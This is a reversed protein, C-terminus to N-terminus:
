LRSEAPMATVGSPPVTRTVLTKFSPVASENTYEMSVAVFVTTPPGVGTPLFASSM